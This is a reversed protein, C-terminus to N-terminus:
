GDGAEALRGALQSEDARDAQLVKGGDSELKRDLRVRAVMREAVRRLLNGVEPAGDLTVIGVRLVLHVLPRPAEDRRWALGVRLGQQAVHRSGDALFEAVLGPLGLTRLRRDLREPEAGAGTAVEC